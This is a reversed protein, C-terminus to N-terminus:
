REQKLLFDHEEEIQQALQRLVTRASEQYGPASRDEALAYLQAGFDPAYVIDRKDLESILMLVMDAIAQIRGALEDFEQNNM